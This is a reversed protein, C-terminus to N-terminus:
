VIPWPAPPASTRVDPPPIRQGPVDALVPPVAPAKLRHWMVATFGVASLVAALSLAVLAIVVGQSPQRDARGTREQM